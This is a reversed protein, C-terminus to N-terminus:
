ALTLTLHMGTFHYLLHTVILQGTCGLTQFCLVVLEIDTEVEHDDATTVTAPDPAPVDGTTIVTVLDPAPVDGTMIEQVLAPVGATMIQLPFPCLYKM